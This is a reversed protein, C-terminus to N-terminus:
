RSSNAASLKERVPEPFISYKYLRYLDQLSIAAGSEGSDPVTVQQGLGGLLLREIETRNLRSGLKKGFNSAGSRSRNRSILDDVHKQFLFVKGLDHADLFGDDIENREAIEALAPHDKLVIAAVENFARQDFNGAEDIMSTNVGHKLSARLLGSYIEDQRFSGTFINRLIRSPKNSLWSILRTVFGSLGLSEAQRAAELGSMTNGNATLTGNRIAARLFPCPLNADAHANHSERKRDEIDQQHTVQTYGHVNRSKTAM